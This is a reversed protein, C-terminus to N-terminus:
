PQVSPRVITAKEIGEKRVFDIFKEIEQISKPSLTDVECLDMSAMEGYTFIGAKKLDKRTEIRMDLEDILVGNEKLISTVVRDAIQDRHRLIERKFENSATVVRKRYDPCHKNLWASAKAPDHIRDFESLLEEDLAKSIEQGIRVELEEKIISEFEWTEQETRFGIGIKWLGSRDLSNIYESM